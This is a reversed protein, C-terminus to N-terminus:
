LSKILVTLCPHLSYLQGPDFNIAVSDKTPLERHYILPPTKQKKKWVNPLSKSCKDSFSGAINGTLSYSSLTPHPYLSQDTYTFPDYEQIDLYEFDLGKKKNSGRM